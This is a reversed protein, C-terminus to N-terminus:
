LCTPIAIAEQGWVNTRFRARVLLHDFVKKAAPLDAAALTIIEAGIAEEDAL